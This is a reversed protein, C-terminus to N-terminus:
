RCASPRPKKASIIRVAHGNKHLRYDCRGDIEEIVELSRDEFM